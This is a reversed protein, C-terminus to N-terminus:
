KKRRRNTEMYLRALARVYENEEREVEQYYEIPNGLRKGFHWVAIISVIIMQAFFLRIVLPLRGIFNQPTQFGHYYEAFFIVDVAREANWRQLTAQVFEGQSPNQMLRGNTASFSDSTVIEGLRYEHSPRYFTARLYAHSLFILRGGNDVWEYLEDAFESTLVRAQPQIMIYVHDTNTQPTLPRYGARVNYGMHRLTDFLLSAGEEGTSSISYPTGDGTDLYHSVLLAIIVFIMPLVWAFKKRM